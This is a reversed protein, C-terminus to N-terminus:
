RYDPESTTLPMWRRTSSEGATTIEALLGAPVPLGVGYEGIMPDLVSVVCLGLHRPVAQPAAWRVARVAAASGDIDVVITDATAIM